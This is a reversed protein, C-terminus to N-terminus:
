QNHNWFLLLTLYQSSYWNEHPWSFHSVLLILISLSSIIFWVLFDLDTTSIGSDIPLLLNKIENFYFLQDAATLLSLSAKTLMPPIFDLKLKPDLRLRCTWFSWTLSWNWVLGWNKVLLSVNVLMLVNSPHLLALILLDIVPDLLNLLVLWDLLSEFINDSSRVYPQHNQKRAIM